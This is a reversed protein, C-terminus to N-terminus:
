DDDAEEYEDELMRRVPRWAGCEPCVVANVGRDLDAGSNYVGRFAGECGEANHEPAAGADDM